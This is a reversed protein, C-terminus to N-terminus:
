EKAEAEAEEHSLISVREGIESDYFAMYDETGPNGCRFLVGYPYGIEIREVTFIYDSLLDLVKDGVRCPLTVVRGGKDAHTLERLQDLDMLDEYEKLRTVATMHAMLCDYDAFAGVKAEAKDKLSAWPGIQKEETLREM